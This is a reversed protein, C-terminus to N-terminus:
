EHRKGGIPRPQAHGVARFGAVWRKLTASGVKLRAAVEDITSDGELYTEVVRTRLELPLPRPVDVELAGGIARSRRLRLGGGGRSHRVLLDVQRLPVTVSAPLAVKCRLKCLRCDGRTVALKGIM